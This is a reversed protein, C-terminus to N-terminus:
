RGDGAQVVERLAALNAQRRAEVGREFAARLDPVTQLLDFFRRRKLGLLFTPVRTRVTATRPVGELLAIEGFYDGDRLLAVRREEGTPGTIVVEVEGRDIFYLKDGPDGEEFIVRGEAHREAVFRKALVFLLAEDLSEFLPITRLRSAESGDRRVDAFGNQQGWPRNYLGQVELLKEHTGQEVVRERELVQTGSPRSALTTVNKEAQSGPMFWFIFHASRHEQGQSSASPERSSATNV